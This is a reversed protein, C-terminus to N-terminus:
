ASLIEEKMEGEAGSNQNEDWVNVEAESSQSEDLESSSQEVQVTKTKGKGTKKGDGKWYKKGKGMQEKVTRGETRTTLNNPLAGEALEGPKGSLRRGCGIRM